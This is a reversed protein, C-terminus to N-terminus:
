SVPHGSPMRVRTEMPSYPLSGGTSRDFLAVRDPALRLGVRSGPRLTTGADTRAVLLADTGQAEHLDRDLKLPTVGEPSFYVLVEPGLPELIEVVADIADASGPSIIELHEPRVGIVVEVRDVEQELSQSLVVQEQGFHLTSGDIQGPILNIPPSGIFSAVFLDSPHVYLQQPADIQNVRGRNMVVVREGLTMAETQDHTVYVTTIGLRRHLSILEARMQVRLKADLNSLPEDMLFAQPQRILARGIAVRQRQGGSLARPKRDLLEEIRLMEAIDRLRERIDAKPVHQQRLPFTINEAVTMHPYLAYNQFVMAIDRKSPDLDNVVRGEVRIEGSTISELGALMRLLTTKGCGSPGVLIMFEGERVDLSFKDVAVTGDAFQKTVDSFTIEAM